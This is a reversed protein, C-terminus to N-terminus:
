FEISAKYEDADVSEIAFGLSRALGVMKPNDKLIVGYM